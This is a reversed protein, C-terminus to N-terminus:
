KADVLAIIDDRKADEPVDIGQATAFAHWAEFGSGAGTRPPEVDTGETDVVVFADPHTDLVSQDILYTDKPGEASRVRVFM